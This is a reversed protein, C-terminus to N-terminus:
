GGGGCSSAGTSRPQSADEVAARPARTASAESAAMEEFFGEFECEEENCQGCGAALDFDEYLDVANAADCQELFMQLGPDDVELWPDEESPHDDIIQILKVMEFEYDAPIYGKFAAWILVQMVQVKKALLIVMGDKQMVSLPPAKMAAGAEALKDACANGKVLNIDGGAELFDALKAENGGDELHSPQWLVRFFHRPSRKLVTVVHAWMPDLHDSAVYADREEAELSDLDDIIKRAGDCVAENDIVICVPTAARSMAEM